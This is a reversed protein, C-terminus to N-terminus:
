RRSARVPAQVEYGRGDRVSLLGRLVTIPKLLLDSKKLQLTVGEPASRVIQRAANDIQGPNAPFFQAQKLSRPASVKMIFKDKGEIASVKWGRPLPQPLHQEALAFLQTQSPNNSTAANLPVSLKLEARDPLCVERCILWKARLTIQASTGPRTDSAVRLPILLLVDDKYGYDALEPSAQLREPVPWEIEGASFGEPLQWELSPPQGSDGPNKWYIHWGQELVFHLGLLAATGPAVEAQKAILEVQAHKAPVPAASAAAFSLLLVAVHHIWSRICSSPM